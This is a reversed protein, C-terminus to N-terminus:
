IKKYEGEFCYFNGYSWEYESMRVRDFTIHFYRQRTGIRIPLITGWGRFGGDPRDFSLTEYKSFDGWKYVRYDSRLKRSNGCIFYIEGDINMISGGTEDGIDGRGVLTFEGDPSDAEFFCYRYKNTDGDHRCVTFLWKNRKEDYILDPDEDGHKGLMLHDQAGSYDQMPEMLKIDVVNVGFRIDSDFTAKGIVHDHNFSAVHLRWVGSKRDYILSTAVDDCWKGDGADFFLAGVMDFDCTGPVWSFVGQHTGWRRRISATFYLKGGEIMVESNEYRVSRMDALGLGCDMFSRVECLRVTGLCFLSVGGNMFFSESQSEAFAEDEFTTIYETGYERCLYVEFAGPRLSIVPIVTGDANAKIPARSEGSQSRFTVFYEGKASEIVIEARADGSFFAFGAEGDLSLLKFSYSAYPFLSCFYREIYERRYNLRRGECSYVGCEVSESHEGVSGILPYLDGRNGDYFDSTFTMKAIPLELTKCMDLSFKRKFTMDSIKM